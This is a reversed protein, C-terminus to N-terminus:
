HGGGKEGGAFITEGSQYLVTVRGLDLGQDRTFQTVKGRELLSIVNDAYGFWMRGKKDAMMSMAPRKGLNPLLVEQEWHGAKYRFVGAGVVSIWIVGDSDQVMEHVLHVPGMDSPYALSETERDSIVHHIAERDAIWITGDRGRMTAQAAGKPHKKLWETNQVAGDPKLAIWGGETNASASTMVDGTGALLRGQTMTFSSLTPTVKNVDVQRFRDLGGSTAAWVNGERDEFFSYILDASLGDKKNFSEYNAPNDPDARHLGASTEFWVGGSRDILMSQSEESKGKFIWPQDIKEYRSFGDITRIGREELFYLRGSGDQQPPQRVDTHGIPASFTSAGHPKLFLGDGSFVAVTDNKEVFVASAKRATFGQEASNKHWKTGDFRLLGDIGAAWVDGQQDFAFGWWSGGSVGDREGFNTIKGERVLSIGGQRWGVWLGVNPQAKIFYVFAKAAQGERPVFASFRVGDFRYLGAATGLWLYGDDTQAMSIISPPVGDKAKWSEHQLQSLKREIPIASTSFSVLMYVLLIFTRITASKM